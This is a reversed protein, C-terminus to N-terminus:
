SSFLARGYKTSTQNWPFTKDELLPMQNCSPVKRQTHLRCFNRNAAPLAHRASKEVGKGLLIVLYLQSGNHRALRNPSALYHGIGTITKSRPLGYIHGSNVSRPTTGSPQGPFKSRLVRRGHQSMAYLPCAQTGQMRLLFAHGLHLTLFITQRM